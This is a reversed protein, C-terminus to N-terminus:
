VWHQKEISHVMTQLDVVMLLVVMTALLLEVQLLDDRLGEIELHLSSLLVLQHQKLQPQKQGIYCHRQTL